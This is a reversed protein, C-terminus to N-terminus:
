VTVLMDSQCEALVQKTVSGLLLEEVLSEGHKGMVILDADLEAEHQLIRLAPNGHVLLLQCEAPTLGAHSRLAQLKQQAEDRAATQYQEITDDDVSAYRLHSEFPAEFAHLLVMAAGPALTKAQEIARLSSPSFDVPVLIKRYPEHPPQKVVLMSCTTTSLLRLATTGLVFHRVISEGRSGCVLLGDKLAHSQRALEDLLSGEVVQTAGAQVGYHTQLLASLEALKQAATDLVKQGIQAASPGLLKRVRELPALHAVHLLDLPAQTDRSVLAARQVAHRAPTSLDTIALIRKFPSM